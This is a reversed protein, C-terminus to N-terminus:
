FFRTQIERGYTIVRRWKPRRFWPLTHAWLPLRGGWYPVALLPVVVGRVRALSSVSWGELKLFRALPELCKAQEQPTAIKPAEGRRAYRLLQLGATLMVRAAVTTNRYGNRRQSELARKTNFLLFNFNKPFEALYKKQREIENLLQDSTMGYEM